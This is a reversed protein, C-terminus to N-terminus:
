LLRQNRKEAVRYDDPITVDIMKFVREEKVVVGSDPRRVEIVHNCQVIFDWLMTM